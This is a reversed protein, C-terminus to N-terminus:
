LTRTDNQDILSKIIQIKISLSVKMSTSQVKQKSCKIQGLSM